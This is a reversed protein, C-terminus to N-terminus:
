IVAVLASSHLKLICVQNANWVANRYTLLNPVSQDLEELASCFGAFVDFQALYHRTNLFERQCTQLLEEDPHAVRLSFLVIWSLWLFHSSGPSKEYRNPLNGLDAAPQGRQPGAQITRLKEAAQQSRPQKASYTVSFCPTKFVPM